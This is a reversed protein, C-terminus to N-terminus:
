SPQGHNKRAALRAVIRETRRQLEQDPLDHLPKGDAGTHELTVKTTFGEQTQAWFKAAKFDPPQAPHIIKGKEDTIAKRGVAMQFLTQRIQTGGKARGGDIAARVEDNKKYARELWDRGLGMLVAIDDLPMRLVCYGELAGLEKETLKRAKAMGEIM